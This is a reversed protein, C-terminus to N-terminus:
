RKGNRAVSIIHFPSINAVTHPTEMHSAKRNILQMYGGKPEFGRSQPKCRKQYINKNRRESKLKYLQEHLTRIQVNFSAFSTHCNGSVTKKKVSDRSDVDSSTVSAHFWDFRLM